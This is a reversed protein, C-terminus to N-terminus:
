LRGASYHAWLGRVVVDDTQNQMVDSVKKTVIGSDTGCDSMPVFHSGAVSEDIM